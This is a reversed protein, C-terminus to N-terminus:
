LFPSYTNSLGSQVYACLKCIKPALTEEVSSKKKTRSVGTFFHLVDLAAQSKVPKKIADVQYSSTGQPELEPTPNPPGSTDSM